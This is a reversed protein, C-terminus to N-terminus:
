KDWMGLTPKGQELVNVKLDSVDAQVAQLREDHAKHRVEVFEGVTGVRMLLILQLWIVVILSVLLVWEM